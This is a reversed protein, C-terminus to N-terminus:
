SNQLEVSVANVAPVAYVNPVPAPVAYAPLRPVFKSLSLSPIFAVTCM